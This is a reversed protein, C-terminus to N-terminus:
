FCNGEIEYCLGFGHMAYYVQKAEPWLVELDMSPDFSLSSTWVDMFTLSDNWGNWSFLSKNYMYRGSLFAYENWYGFSRFM